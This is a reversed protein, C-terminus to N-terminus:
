NAMGTTYPHVVIAPHRQYSLLTMQFIAPAIWNQSIYTGVYAAVSNTIPPVM